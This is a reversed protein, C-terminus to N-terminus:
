DEGPPIWRVIKRGWDVMASWPQYSMGFYSRQELSVDDIRRDHDSVGRGYGSWSEDIGVEIRWGRMDAHGPHVAVHRDGDQDSM